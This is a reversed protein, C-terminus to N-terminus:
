QHTRRRRKRLEPPFVDMALLEQPPQWTVSLHNFAFTRLPLVGVQDLVQLLLQATERTRTMRCTTQFGSRPHIEGWALLASVKASHTPPFIYTRTLQGLQQIVALLSQLWSRIPVPHLQAGVQTFDMYDIGGAYAKFPTPPLSSTVVVFNCLLELTTTGPFRTQRQPSTDVWELTQAWHWARWVFQVGWSSIRFVDWPPAVSELPPLQPAREEIWSLLSFKPRDGQSTPAMEVMTGNRKVNTAANLAVLYEHVRQLATRQKDYNEACCRDNRYGSVFGHGASGSM